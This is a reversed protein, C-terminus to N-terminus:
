VGPMVLPRYTKGWYARVARTLEDLAQKGDQYRRAPSDEVCRLVTRIIAPSAAHEPFINQKTDGGFLRLITKGAMYIDTTHDPPKKQFVEPPYWDKWRDIIHTIRANPHAVRDIAHAWGIHLAEHTKPHVMVHDPTIAGHVVGAMSAALMQSAGAARDM